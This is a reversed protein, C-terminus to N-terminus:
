SSSETHDETKKVTSSSAANNINFMEIKLKNSGYTGLELWGRNQVFGGM